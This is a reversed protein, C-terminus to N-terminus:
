RKDETIKHIKLNSDILIVSGDIYDAILREVYSYNNAQAIRDAEFTGILDKTLYLRDEWLLGDKIIIKRINVQDEVVDGTDIRQHNVNWKIRLANTLEEPTFGMALAANAWFQLIDTLEMALAERDVEKRTAKWPKFNTEALAETAEVIVHLLNEKLGAEGTGTPDGMRAQLRAQTGLLETLSLVTIM